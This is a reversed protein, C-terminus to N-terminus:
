GPRSFLLSSGFLVLMIAAIFLAIKIISWPREGQVEGTRANVIFRYVKRGYRYSNIWLPFLVHKITIDSYGTEVSHIQQADGGIDAMIKQQIWPRMREKAVEFGEEPGIQYSETRFGSLFRDDHPALNKLDWPELLQVYESPLSRSGSVLVDDFHVDVTGQADYWRIKQVM